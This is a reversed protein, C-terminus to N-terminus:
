KKPRQGGFGNGGFGNGGVGGFSPKVPVEQGWIARIAAEIEEPSPRIPIIIVQPMPPVPPKITRKAMATDDGGLVPTQQDRCPATGLCSPHGVMGFVVAIIALTGM